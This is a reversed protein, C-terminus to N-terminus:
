LNINGAIRVWTLEGVFFNRIVQNEQRKRELEGTSIRCGRIYFDAASSRGTTTPATKPPERYNDKKISFHRM